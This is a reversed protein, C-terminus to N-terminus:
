EFLSPKALWHESDIIIYYNNGNIINKVEQSSNAYYIYITLSGRFYYNSETSDDFLIEENASTIYKFEDSNKLSLDSVSNDLSPGDYSFYFDFSNMENSPNDCTWVFRENEKEIYLSHTVKHGNYDFSQSANIQCVTVRSHECSVLLFTLASTVLLLNKKMRQYEIM